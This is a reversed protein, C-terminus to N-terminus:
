SQTSACQSEREVEAALGALDLARAGAEAMAFLELARSRSDVLRALDLAVHAARSPAGIARYVRLAEDLHAAARARDGRAVALLGLPRAVADLYGLGDAAVVHQGAFPALLPELLAARHADGTRACLEASLAFVMLRNHDYAVDRFDERALDDLRARAQAARGLAADVLGQCAIVFPIRGDRAVADLAGEMEALRGQERRVLVLQGPLPDFLQARVGHVDPATLGAVIMREADGAHGSALAYMVQRPRLYFRVVPHLVRDVMAAYAAVDAGLAALDGSDADDRIGCIRALAEVEVDRARQGLALLEASLAARAPRERPDWSSVHRAWLVYALTLPERTGRAFREARDLLSAREAPALPPRYVLARRALVRAALGADRDRPKPAAREIVEDLLALAETDEAGLSRGFRGVRALAIRALDRWSRRRRALDLADRLTADAAGTHGMQMEAEGRVITLAARAALALTETGPLALARAAHRATEEWAGIRATREAAREAHRVARRLRNGDSRAGSRARLEVAAASHAALAEAAGEAAGRAAEREIATTVRDHLEAKEADSLADHVVERVVAHAFALEGAGSPRLLGSSVLAHLARPVDVDASALDALRQPPLAEGLVAAIAVLSRAPAELRAIREAVFGRVSGPLALPQATILGADGLSALIEVAFFPNGATLRHLSAVSAPDGRKGALEALDAESLAGLSVVERVGTREVPDSGRGRAETDRFTGVVLLPIAPREGALFRLFRLTTADAWQLDDLAVALPTREALRGFLRAWQDFLAFADNAGLGEGAAPPDGTACTRAAAREEDSALARALLPLERADLGHPALAAVLARTAQTWPWGSPMAVDEHCRGWAVAAGRATCRALLEDALRTKGIGPEGGILAVHARGGLVGDFEAELRVLEARRGVFGRGGGAEAGARTAATVPVVLRLGHRSVTEIRRAHRDADGIAVRARRVCQSVAAESVVTDPWLARLMEARPLLAGGREALLALLDFAKPDVDVPGGGRRLTRQIPDLECDAFRLLLM